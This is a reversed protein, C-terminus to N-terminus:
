FFLNDICIDYLTDQSFLDYASCIRQQITGKSFSITNNLCPSVNGNPYVRVACIRELCSSSNICQRCVNWNVLASLKPHKVTIKSKADTNIVLSPPLGLKVTARGLKCIEHLVFQQMKIDFDSYDKLEFMIDLSISHKLCLDVIEGITQYNEKVIVVNLNKNLAPFDCLCEMFEFPNVNQYKKYVNKSFSTISINLNHIPKNIQTSLRALNYGNTTLGINGHYRNQIDNIIASLDSRLTPEGGTLAITPIMLTEAIEACDCILSLAMTEKVPNGEHHCFACNGNCNTNLVLRLTPILRNNNGRTIERLSQSGM